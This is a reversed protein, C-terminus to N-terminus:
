GGHAPPKRADLRRTCAKSACPRASISAYSAVRQSRRASLAAMPLAPVNFEAAYKRRRHGERLGDVRSTATGIYPAMAKSVRNEQRVAVTAHWAGGADLARVIARRALDIKFTNHAFAGPMACFSIPRRLSRRRTPPAARSLPKPRRHRALAQPRRRRARFTSGQDHRRSSWGPRSLFWRSLMPCGTASRSIPTTSRSDRPRFSSRLSSRTRMSIPTSAAPTARAASSFGRIRHRTGGGPGMVHVKAELVALAVCMDSPHVAICAESTGLIAHMRNLGDIASCGVARSASTAPRRSTM